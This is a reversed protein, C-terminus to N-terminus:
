KAVPRGWLRDREVRERITREVQPRFSGTHPLGDVGFLSMANVAGERVSTEPDTEAVKLLKTITAEPNLKAASLM